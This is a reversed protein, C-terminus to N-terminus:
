VLARFCINCNFTVKRIVQGDIISKTKLMKVDQYQTGQFERYETNDQQETINPPSSTTVPTESSHNAELSTTLVKGLCEFM